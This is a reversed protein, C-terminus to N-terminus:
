QIRKFVYDSLKELAQGHPNAPTGELAARARSSYERATERTRSLADHEDIRQRIEDLLEPEIEEFGGRNLLNERLNPEEQLVLLLPFNITGSKVDALPTKGSQDHQYDLVDDVMQFAIGLNEAYRSFAEATGEDGDPLYGGCWASYTFLSSTKLRVIRLYQEETIEPNSSYESQLIEGQILDTMVESLKKVPRTRELELLEDIVHAVLYDGSLVSNIEGFVINATPEGRRVTGDDIVDDHLLTATHILECGVAYPRVTEIDQGGAAGYCLFMLAPRLRKGGASVLHTAVNAALPAEWTELSGLVDEVEELAEDVDQFQDRLADLGFNETEGNLTRIGDRIAQLM